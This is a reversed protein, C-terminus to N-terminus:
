HASPNTRSWSSPTPICSLYAEYRRANAVATDTSTVAHRMALVIFRSHWDEARCAGDGKSWIRRFVVGHGPRPITSSACCGNRDRCGAAITTHRMAM